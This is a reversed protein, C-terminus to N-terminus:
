ASATERGEGADRDSGEDGYGEETVRAVPRRFRLTLIGRM